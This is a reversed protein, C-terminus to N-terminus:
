GRLWAAGRAGHRRLSCAPQSAAQKGGQGSTPPSLASAGPYCCPSRTWVRAGAPAGPSGAKGGADPEQTGRGWCLPCPPGLQRSGRAGPFAPGSEESAAPLSLQCPRHDLGIEKLNLVPWTCRLTGGAGEKQADSVTHQLPKTLSAPVTASPDRTTRRVSQCESSPVPRRTAPSRSHSFCSPHLTLCAREM